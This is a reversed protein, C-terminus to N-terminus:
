KAKRITIMYIYDDHYIYTPNPDLNHLPANSSNENCNAMAM